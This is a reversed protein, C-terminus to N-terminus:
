QVAIYLTQTGATGGLTFTVPVASAAAVQPVTVDFQYLGVYNPALGDYRVTAPVGGISISFNATLENLQQVIQGAPIDPTVAGFGVGYLTITEGPNAPRSNVGPIAGTPLVYTGDGFLAVVYQTGGIKFSPPADFGPEIENVVIEYTSSTGGPATVTM